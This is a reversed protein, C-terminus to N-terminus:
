KRSNPLLFNLHLTSILQNVKSNPPKNDRGHPKNDRSFLKFTKYFDQAKRLKKFSFITSYPMMINADTLKAQQYMIFSREFADFSKIKNEYDSVFVSPKNVKDGEPFNTKVFNIFGNVNEESSEIMTNIIVMNNEKLSKADFNEIEFDEATDMLFLIYDADQIKGVKITIKKKM